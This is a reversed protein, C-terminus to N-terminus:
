PRLSSAPIGVLIKNFLGFVFVIVNNRTTVTPFIFCVSIMSLLAVILKAIIGWLLIEIVGFM